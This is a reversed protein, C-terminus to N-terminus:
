EPDTLLQQVFARLRSEKAPSIAATRIKITLAGADRTISGAQEKGIFLKKIDRDTRLTHGRTISTLVADALKTQDLKGEKVRSWLVSLAEIAVAGHAKLLSVVQEAAFRSLLRPARDLDTKLFDPLADFALYRYLDSREVGIAKAMHKRNPFEKEARRIAKSIEYDALDARDLNEALAMVALDEDAAVIVIAKITAQGLAQHARLRREGAVLEFRTDLSQVRQRKEGTDLTQVRRVIVPQILGVEAISAALDAIEMQDFFTRPQWPNPDILEVPIETRKADALDAELAAIRDEYTAMENRFAILQGPATRPTESQAAPEMKDLVESLGASISQFKDKKSM